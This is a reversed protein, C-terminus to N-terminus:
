HCCTGTSWLPTFGDYLVLNGDNQMVLHAGPHSGSVPPTWIVSSGPGYFVLNGDPRMALYLAQNGYVNAHWLLTSGWWVALNGDDQVTFRFRTDASVLSQQLVLEENSALTNGAAPMALSVAQRASRSDAADYIYSTWATGSGSRVQTAGTVRGQVDYVYTQASQAAANGAAALCVALALLVRM